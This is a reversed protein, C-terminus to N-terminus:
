IRRKKKFSEYDNFILRVSSGKEIILRKINSVENYRGDGFVTVSSRSKVEIVLRNPRIVYNIRRDSKDGTVSWNNSSLPLITGYNNKNIGTSGQATSIIIGSGKFPGIISDEDIVNFEIWSALDGGLCIDNFSEFEGTKGDLTEYNCKLLNFHKIIHNPLVSNEKNMLFNVTGTGIGFFPKNKDKFMNIARLLTGDGGKAIIYDSDEEIVKNYEDKFLIM